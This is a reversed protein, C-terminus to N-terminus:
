IIKNKMEKIFQVVKDDVIIDKSKVPRKLTIGEITKCRSLAVYTQGHAFAGDGLDIVAKDFTKGQSKHITIAWALMIPYQRFTGIVNSILKDQDSDYVYNIAEWEHQNVTYIIRNIKVKIEGSSLDDIIGITGNVWRGEQDNKLMMIQAGQKLTLIKPAPYDKSAVEAFSGTIKAEYTFATTQLKEMMKNNRKEVLDNKTCLVIGRNDYVDIGEIYQKNLKSLTENNFNNERISNLINIFDNDKQRFITNLELFKFDAEEFADSNFFYHGRYKLNFYDIICGNFIEGNDFIIEIKDKKSVVPPLQYMDGIFIMQIGGFPKQEDRFKKLIYDVGQLVDARVMSIEDILIADVHKFLERVDEKYSINEINDDTIVEHPFKFLSHITQARINLAAVGTPALCVTKKKTTLRFYELLTSKGTGAKGTIFVSYNTKEILEFANRFDDTFVFDKPLKSEEQIRADFKNEKAENTVPYNDTNLRKLEDNQKRLIDNENRLSNNRKSFFSILSIFLLIGLFIFLYEMPIKYKRKEENEVSKPEMIINSAYYPVLNYKSYKYSFLLKM